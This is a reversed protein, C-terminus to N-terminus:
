KQGVTERCRLPWTMATVRHCFIVAVTVQAARKCEPTYILTLSLTFDIGLLVVVLVILVMIVHQM